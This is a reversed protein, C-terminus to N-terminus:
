DRILDLGNLPVDVRLTAPAFCETQTCAQFAVLLTVVTPGLNKTFQLPIVSRISGEYVVFREELGDIQLPKPRPLVARGVTLGDLPNVQLSLPTYGEPAPSAFAHRDPPLSLQVHLRVHQYPRYTPGDTWARVTLGPGGARPAEAPPRIESTGLAYEEFIRATPRVRYSQEFHKQAIVGSADLVFTGPYAVGIQEDRTQIGYFAHQEVLHKDNLLGLARITQSGVDSLLPYTIGHKTAFAALAEVSDYSLAFLAVGARELRRWADQLEVLQV